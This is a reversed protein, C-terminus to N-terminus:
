PVDVTYIPCLDHFKVNTTTLCSLGLVGNAACGPACSAASLFIVELPSPLPPSCGLLDGATCGTCNGDLVRKFCRPQMGSRTHNWIIAPGSFPHTYPYTLMGQWMHPLLRGAAPRAKSPAGARQSGGHRSCCFCHAALVCSFFGM